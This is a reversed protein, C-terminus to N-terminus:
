FQLKLSLQVSRPGGTQYLPSLGGLGQNLMETSALSPKSDINAQPNTFNPHNLLNFLDGRLQLSVRETFAFKRALSLDIQTFGFGTIADRGLTGQRHAAAPATVDFAAPNLAKGGPFQPGYLWIPVGMVLDPRTLEGPALGPITVQRTTVNIPLGTRAQVVADASWGGTIGKVFRSNTLTPVDYTVAGSFNHRVDFSSNGRESSTPIGGHFAVAFSDDSSSDISHSWTYNLLAQVRQSLPRRFQTQLAHYDSTDRNEAIQFSGSFNSNPQPENEFRILKRGIQGVYTISLVNKEAFSKEIAGNWQYSRPLELNPSFGMLASFVSGGYPPQTSLTPTIGATNTLPIPASSLFAFGANPFSVALNPLTATGSDYFIGWGGRIVVDGKETLRYALGVRPAFNGYTNKWVPTGPPALATATPNGVNTWSALVTGDYGSPAPDFEWRLGFTVNLKRTVMWEDQAYLSLAHFRIKSPLAIENLIVDATGTSAFGLTTAADYVIASGLGAQKLNLQRYDFGFKLHHSTLTAGLEDLFNLQTERNKAKPGVSYFGVDDAQFGANGNASSLPSPFLLNESPVVAGGFSDIQSGLTADQISYNSRFSNTITPTLLGTLGITATTTDVKSNDVENMSNRGRSILRSPAYNYRGFVSWRGNAFHHDVRLSTANLVAQNSSSGTFMATGDGFDQGNPKPFGNLYPAASAVAGSRASLSPVTEVQTQPQRLRLGEYSFFFFTSDKLIPGGLFGGFDNQHEPAHPQGPLRNAFWDNADLVNNRFYDFVGGHFENTGSRTQISVQGGPARGYEPAFTSTQVRFEQMADVSVLSSTGGYANFAQSGGAGSQGLGFAPSVGFNASVGDVSFYNANTRQGNVSVQGPSSANTPVTVVGPTLQLLTNFSRGNLPLQSVFERDIVTSVSADTTNVLPAGGTVTVTESISGVSMSFNLSANDRVNLVVDPKVIQKFGPNTVIVRYTGPQLATAVYLGSSNTKTAVQRGTLVNQIEVDAGSVIAGSPDTVRGSITATETQCFAITFCCLTALVVVAATKM